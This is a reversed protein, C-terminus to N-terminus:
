RLTNGVIENGDGSFRTLYGLEFGFNLISRDRETVRSFDNRNQIALVFGLPEALCAHKRLPLKFFLDHVPM